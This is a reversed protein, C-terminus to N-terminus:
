NQIYWYKEIKKFTISKKGDGNEKLTYTARTGTKDLTPKTDKIEELVKLLKPAKDEAFRKVFEDLPTKKTIEKLDAPAVFMEVFPKHEKATLLKIGEPIATELKERPDPKPDDAQAAVVDFAAFLFAIVFISSYVHFHQVKM